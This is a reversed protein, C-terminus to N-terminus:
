VHPSPQHDLVALGQDVPEVKLKHAAWTKEARYLERRKWRLQLVLLRVFLWWKVFGLLRLRGCKGRLFRSWSWTRFVLRDYQHNFERLTM